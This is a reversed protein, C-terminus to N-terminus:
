QRALREEVWDRFKQPTSLPIVQGNLFFTPTGQIKADRGSQMDNLVLQELNPSAMSERFRAPDLGIQAAYEAFRENSGGPERAWEQQHLFLMGHMEWFRNQEGAAEAAMAAGLANAHIQVLPFHHYVFRVQDPFRHIIDEVVPYYAGCAPCQYDGVEELVYEAKEPGRSHGGSITTVGPASGHTEDGFIGTTCASACRTMVIGTLGVAVIAILIVAAPIALRVLPSRVPKVPTVGRGAQAMVREAFGAAPEQHKLVDRIENELPNM